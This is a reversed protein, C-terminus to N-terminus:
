LKSRNNDRCSPGLGFQVIRLGSDLRECPRSISVVGYDLCMGEGAVPAKGSSGSM